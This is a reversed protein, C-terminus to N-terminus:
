YNVLFIRIEIPNKKCYQLKELTTKSKKLTLCAINPLDNFIEYM